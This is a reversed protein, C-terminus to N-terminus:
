LLLSAFAHLCRGVRSRCANRWVIYTPVGKWRWWSIEIRMALFTEVNQPLGKEELCGASSARVLSGAALPPIVKLM